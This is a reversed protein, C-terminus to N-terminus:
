LEDGREIIRKESKTYTKKRCEDCIWIKNSFLIDGCCRMLEPNEKDFMGCGIIKSM